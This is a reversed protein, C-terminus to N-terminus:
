DLEYLVSQASRSKVGVPPLTNAAVCTGVPNPLGSHPVVEVSPVFSSTIKEATVATADTEQKVRKDPGQSQKPQKQQKQLQQQEKMKKEQQLKSLLWLDELREVVPIDPNAQPLAPITPM